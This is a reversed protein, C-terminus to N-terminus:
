WIKSSAKWLEVDVDHNRRWLLISTSVEAKLTIGKDNSQTNLDMEYTKLSGLFDVFTITTADKAKKIAAVKASFRM